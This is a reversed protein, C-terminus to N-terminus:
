ACTPVTSPGLRPPWHEAAKAFPTGPYDVTTNLNELCFVVGEREGLAGIRTLTKEAALWMPGTVTEVPRM